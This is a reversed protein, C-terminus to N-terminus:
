GRVSEGWVCRGCVGRCVGWVCGCVVGEVYGCMGVCVDGCECGVCVGGKVYWLGVCTGCVGWM